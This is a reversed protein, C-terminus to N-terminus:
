AAVGERELHVRRKGTLLDAMLAAKEQVLRDFMEKTGHAVQMAADVIAVIREQEAIPVLPIPLAKLQTSNISALNTSRKACSLFYSRGHDSAAMAAIFGPLVRGLKPRVAFVHNQHLCPDIEGSWVTGRGLKDFDGGETMLVDGAQLAYRSVHERAVEILKVESLDLRGDQVNAVRLYPVKIADRQGTKGKALGTRVDAVDALPVRAHRLATGILTERVLRAQEMRKAWLAGAVVIADDWATLIRAIRRQEDLPPVTVALNLFQEKSINKMSGSSGTALASIEARTPANALWNALWRMHVPRTSTPQLQWLKDPLFLDRHDQEIYASAGLLEATNCRSVIIRDARPNSKARSVEDARILKNQTPDFVGSTVASIKLVGYEGQGAARDLGNVSVGSEVDAVLDGLRSRSWGEPLM